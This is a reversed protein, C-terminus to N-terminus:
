RVVRRLRYFMGDFHDWVVDGTSPSVAVMGITVKEDAGLGGRLEEALCILPAVSAADIDDASGLHDVYTAATYLNTLERSFM